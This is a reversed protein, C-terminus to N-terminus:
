KAGGKRAKQLADPIHCAAQLDQLTKIAAEAKRAIMVREHDDIKGDALADRLATAVEGERSWAGLASNIIDGTSADVKEVTIRVGYELGLLMWATYDNYLITLYLLVAPSITQEGQLMKRITPLNHGQMNTRLMRELPVRGKGETAMNLLAAQADVPLAPIDFKTSM